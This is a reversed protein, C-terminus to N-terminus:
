RESFRRSLGNQEYPSTFWALPGVEPDHFPLGLAYRLKEWRAVAEGWQWEV